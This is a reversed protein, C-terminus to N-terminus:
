IRAGEGAKEIMEDMTYAYAEGYIKAYQTVFSEFALKAKASEHGSLYMSLRRAMAWENLADWRLMLELVRERREPSVAYDSRFVPEWREYQEKKIDDLWEYAHNPLVNGGALLRSLKDFDTTEEAELFDCRWDESLQAYWRGGEFALIIGEFDLLAKKLRNISKQRNEKKQAPSAGDWLLHGIDQPAIGRKGQLLILLFLEKLKPGLKESYDDNDVTIKLGGYVRIENKSIPNQYINGQQEVEKQKPIEITESKNKRKLIFIVLLFLVILISSFVVLYLFDVSEAKNINEIEGSVGAMLKGSPVFDIRYLDVRSRNETIAYKLAAWLEGTMKNHFFFVKADEISFPFPIGDALAINEGTKLDFYRLRLKTKNQKVGEVDLSQAIYPFTLTFFGSSDDAMVLQNAPVMDEPPNELEWLKRATLEKLNIIYADYFHYAGSFHQGDPSGYGGFLIFEGNESYPGVAACTRPSIIDGNLSLKEWNKSNAVYRILENHFTYYGYGGFFAPTGTVPDIFTSKHQRERVQTDQGGSLRIWETNGNSLFLPGPGQPFVFVSDNGDAVATFDRSDIPIKKSQKRVSLALGQMDFVRLTDPEVFWLEQANARYAIGPNAETVFSATKRWRRYKDAVWGRPKELQAIGKGLQDKLQGDTKNNRELTWHRKLKENEFFRIDKLNIPLILPTQFKGSDVHGFTFFAKGCEFELAETIHGNIRLRVKKKDFIISARNWRNRSFDNRPIKVKTHSVGNKNLYFAFSKKGNGEFPTMTVSYTDAGCAFVMLQGFQDVERVQFDFDFRSNGLPINLGRKPLLKLTTRGSEETEYSNFMVGRLGGEPYALASRWLGAFAMLTLFLCKLRGLEM